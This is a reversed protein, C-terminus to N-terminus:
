YIKNYLFWYNIGSDILRGLTIKELLESKKEKTKQLFESLDSIVEDISKKIDQM